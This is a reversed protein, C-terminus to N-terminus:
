RGATGTAWVAGSSSYLVLNGDDQMVLQYGLRPNVTGTAWQAGYPGYLVLNGDGQVALFAGPLPQGTMWSSAWVPRGSSYVVFNGDGQQVAVHRQDGSKLYNGPRLSSSAKAFQGRYVPPAAVARSRQPPPSAIAPEGVYYDSTYIPQESVNTGSHAAVWMQNGGAYIADHYIGTGDYFFLVDGPVAASQPVHRMAAYQENTTRPLAVGARAYVFQVLGSCDFSDPGAAGYVYPKGAEQAAYNVISQGFTAGSASQGKTAGSASGTLVGGILGVLAAVSLVASSLRTSRRTLRTPM